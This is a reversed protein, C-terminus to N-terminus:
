KRASLLCVFFTSLDARLDQNGSDMRSRRFIPYQWAESFTSRPSVQALQKALACAVAEYIVHQILAEQPADARHVGSRPSPLVAIVWLRKKRSRHSAVHAHALDCRAILVERRSGLAAATESMGAGVLVTTGLGGAPRMSGPAYSVGCDAPSKLATEGM